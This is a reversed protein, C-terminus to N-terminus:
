KKQDEAAATKMQALGREFDGGVMKDMNMFMCIAKEMFGNTGAMSWTVATGNGDPKFQFLTACTSAFPKIFELKISVAEAPRSELLTMQGEGVKDNGAWKFIAGPGAAPGEFTNRVAPDLKAWPSWQEWKHFDNVLGFVAPAPAPIVATRVVQYEAPQMAVVGVFVVVLIAVAIMVKKLM